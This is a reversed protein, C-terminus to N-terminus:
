NLLVACFQVFSTLDLPKTFIDTVMIQTNIRWLPTSILNLYQERGFQLWREYHRSRATSGANKISPVAAQNDCKITIPLSLELQFGDRM